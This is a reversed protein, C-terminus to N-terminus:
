NNNNNQIVNDKSKSSRGTWFGLVITMAITLDDTDKGLLIAIGYIITLMVSIILLATKCRSSNFSEWFSDIPSATGDEIEYKRLTNRIEQIEDKRHERYDKEDIFKKFSMFFLNDFLNIIWFVQSEDYIYEIM